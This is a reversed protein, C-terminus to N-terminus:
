MSKSPEVTSMFEVLKSSDAVFIESLEASLRIVAPVDFVITIMSPSSPIQAPFAVNALAGNLTSKFPFKVADFAFIDPFIVAVVPTIPPHVTPVPLKYLASFVTSNFEAVGPNFILSEPPVFRTVM